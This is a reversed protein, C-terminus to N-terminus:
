DKKAVTANVTVSGGTVSTVRARLFSWRAQEDFMRGDSVDEGEGSGLTFTFAEVGRLADNSVEVVVEAASAAGLLSAQVTFPAGNTPVFDGTAPTSTNILGVAQSTKTMTM